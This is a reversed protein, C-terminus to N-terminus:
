LPQPGLAPSLATREAIPPGGPATTNSLLHDSHVKSHGHPLLDGSHLENQGCEIGIHASHIKPTQLPRCVKQPVPPCLPYPPMQPPPLHGPPALAPWPRFVWLIFSIVM